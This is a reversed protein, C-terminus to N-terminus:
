QLSFKTLMPRRRFSDALKLAAANWWELLESDDGAEKVPSSAVSEPVLMLVLSTGGGAIRSAEFLEMGVVVGRAPLFLREADRGVLIIYVGGLMSVPLSLLM